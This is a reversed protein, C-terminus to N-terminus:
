TLGFADFLPALLLEVVFFLIASVGFRVYAPACCEPNPCPQTAVYIGVFTAFVGFVICDITELKM